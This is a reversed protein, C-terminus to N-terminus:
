LLDEVLVEQLGLRRALQKASVPLHPTIVSQCNLTPLPPHLNGIWILAFEAHQHSSWMNTHLDSSAHQGDDRIELLQAFLGSEGWM